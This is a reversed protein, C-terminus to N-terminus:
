APTSIIGHKSGQQFIRDFGVGVPYFKPKEPVFQFHRRLLDAPTLRIKDRLETQLQKELLDPSVCAKSSTM